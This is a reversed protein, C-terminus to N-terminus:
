RCFTILLLIGLMAAGCLLNYGCLQHGELQRLMSKLESPSFMTDSDDQLSEIDFNFVKKQKIELSRRKKVFVNDKNKQKRGRHICVLSAYLLNAEKELVRYSSQTTVIYDNLCLIPIINQRICEALIIRQEMACVAGYLSYIGVTFISIRVTNHM